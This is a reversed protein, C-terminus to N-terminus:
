YRAFEGHLKDAMERYANIAGEKTPFIGLYKEKRNYRIRASWKGSKTPSVGKHGSTNHKPTKSNCCNQGETALRLNCLRNDSKDANKHDVIMSPWEGTTLAWAIVHTKYSKPGFRIRRYGSGKHLYGAETGAKTPWGRGVRSIRWTVIGTDPDYNLEERLRDVSVNQYIGRTM